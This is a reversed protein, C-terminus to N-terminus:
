QVFIFVFVALFIINLVSRRLIDQTHWLKSQPYTTAVVKDYRRNFFALERMEQLFSKVVRVQSVSEAFRGSAVDQEENIEKQYAQWKSSTRTTLWIFIPYLSLLMLAVPWSYLAVIVVSFV